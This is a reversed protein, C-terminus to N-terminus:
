MMQICASKDKGRSINTLQSINELGAPNKDYQNKIMQECVGLEM